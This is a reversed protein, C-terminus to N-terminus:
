AESRMKKSGDGVARELAATLGSLFNAAATRIFFHGGDVEQLDFNRGTHRGWPEVVSRPAEDDDSGYFAAVDIDLPDEEGHEYLEEIALDARLMPLYLEMLDRNRLIEEPTGSFRRLGEILEEEPLHHLPRPEPIHPARAAAACLLLPLTRGERRLRRVMEFAVLAGTSYGMFAFPLDTHAIISPLLEEVLVHVDAIAAEKIRNERGPPQVACVAVWDPLSRQWMRFVSAGGGAYPFCFLNLRPAQRSHCAGGATFFVIAPNMFYLCNEM